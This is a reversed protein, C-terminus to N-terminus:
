DLLSKHKVAFKILAFAGSLHLKACIHARHNDVTRRSVHLVESIEKTTKDAAIHRLIQKEAQTLLHLGLRERQQPQYEPIKQLAMSTMAASVFYEGEAVNTIGRVIELIASDKLVYGMIGTDMAEDFLDGDDYMTLIILAVPLTENKVVRAVDLGTMKPMEIDLVAINPQHERILALATEGDEAEGIVHFKPSSEIIGRLGKRFVPHDDAIVISTAQNM